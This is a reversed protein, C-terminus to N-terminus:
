QCGLRDGAPHTDSQTLTTACSRRGAVVKVRVGTAGHLKVAELTVTATGDQDATALGQALVQGGTSTLTVTVLRDPPLGPWRVSAKATQEAGTGSVAVEVVPRQAPTFLAV